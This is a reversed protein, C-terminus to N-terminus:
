WNCTKEPLGGQGNMSPNYIRGEGWCGEEKILVHIKRVGFLFYLGHVKSILRIFAWAHFKLKNLLIITIGILSFVM